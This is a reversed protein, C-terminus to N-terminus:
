GFLYTLESPPAFAVQFDASYLMQTDLRPSSVHDVMGTKEGVWPVEFGRGVEGEVFLAARKYKKDIYKDYIAAHHKQPNKCCKVILSM